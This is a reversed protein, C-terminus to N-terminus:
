PRRIVFQESATNSISSMNTIGHEHHVANCADCQSHNTQRACRKVVFPATTQRALGGDKLGNALSGGPLLFCERPWRCQFEWIGGSRELRLAEERGSHNIPLHPSADDVVIRLHEEIM